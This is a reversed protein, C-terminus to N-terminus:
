GCPTCGRDRRLVRAFAQVRRQELEGIAWALAMADRTAGPALDRVMTSQASAYDAALRTKEALLARLVDLHTM